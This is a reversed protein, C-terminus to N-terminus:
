NGGGYLDWNLPATPTIEILAIIVAAGLKVTEGAAVTVEEFPYSTRKGDDFANGDGASQNHDIAGGANEVPLVAGGVHDVGTLKGHLEGGNKGAVWRWCACPAGAELNKQTLLPTCIMVM